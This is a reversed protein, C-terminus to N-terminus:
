FEENSSYESIEYDDFIEELVASQELHTLPYM